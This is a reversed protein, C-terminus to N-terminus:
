EYFEFYSGNRCVKPFKSEEDILSIINLPKQGILDLIEQNDKFEIRSWNIREKDYEQQELKFIHRVFFQQLNENCYNICMQEFSNFVFAEFGFIDLVGISLWRAKKDQILFCYACYHMEFLRTVSQQLSTSQKM